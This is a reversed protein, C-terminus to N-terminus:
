PDPSFHLQRAGAFWGRTVLAAVQAAQAPNVREIVDAPTGSLAKMGSPDVGTITISRVHARM